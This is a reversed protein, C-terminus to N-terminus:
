SQIGTKKYLKRGNIIANQKLWCVACSYLGREIVDAREGCGCKM